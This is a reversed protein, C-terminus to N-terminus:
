WSDFLLETDEDGGILVMKRIGPGEELGELDLTLCGPLGLCMGPLGLMDLMMLDRADEPLIKKVALEHDLKLDELKTKLANIEKRKATVKADDPKDALMLKSLELKKVALDVKLRSTARVHKIREDIVKAKTEADIGEGLLSLGNGKLKIVKPGGEGKKVKIICPEDECEAAMMQIIKDEDDAKQVKIICQKGCGEDEDVCVSVKKVAATEEEAEGALAPSVSGGVLLLAALVTYLNM